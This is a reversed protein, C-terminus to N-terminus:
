YVILRRVDLFLYQLFYELATAITSGFVAADSYFAGLNYWGYLKSVISHM